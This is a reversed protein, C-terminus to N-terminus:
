DIAYKNGQEDTHSWDAGKFHVLYPNFKERDLQNFINDATRLSVEYEGSDGGAIVAVNYKYLCM